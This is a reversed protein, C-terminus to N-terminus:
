WLILFTEKSIENRSVVDVYGFVTPIEGSSLKANVGIYHRVGM